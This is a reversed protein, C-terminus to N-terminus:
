TRGTGRDVSESPDSDQESGDDAAAKGGVADPGAGDKNKRRLRAFVKRLRSSNRVRQATPRWMWVWTAFLGIFSFGLWEFYVVKWMGLHVHGPLNLLGITTAIFFFSWFLQWIIRITVERDATARWLHDISRSVQLRMLEQEVPFKELNNLVEVERVLRNRKDNAAIRASILSLIAVLLVGGTTVLATVLADSM